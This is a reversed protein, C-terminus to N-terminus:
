RAIVFADAGLERGSRVADAALERALEIAVARAHNSTPYQTASGYRVVESGAKIYMHFMPM